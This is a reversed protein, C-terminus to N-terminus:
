ATPAAPAASPLPLTSSSTPTTTWVWVAHPLRVRAARAAGANATPAAATSPGTAGCSSSAPRTTAAAPAAGSGAALAAAHMAAAHRKVDELRRQFAAPDMQRHSLPIYTHNLHQQATSFLTHNSLHHHCYSARASQRRAIERKEFTVSESQTRREEPM